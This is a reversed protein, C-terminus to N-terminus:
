ARRTNRSQREDTLDTKLNLSTMVEQMPGAPRLAQPRISNMPGSAPRGQAPRISRLRWEPTGDPLRIRMYRSQESAPLRDFEADSIIM